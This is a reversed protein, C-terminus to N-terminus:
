QMHSCFYHLAELPLQLNDSLSGETIDSLSEFQMTPLTFALVGLVGVIGVICSYIM